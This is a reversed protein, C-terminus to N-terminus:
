RPRQRCHKGQSQAENEACAVVNACLIPCPRVRGHRPGPQVWLLPLLFFQLLVHTRGLLEWLSWAEMAPTPHVAGVISAAADRGHRCQQNIKRKNGHLKPKTPGDKAARQNQKITANLPDKQPVITPVKSLNTEPPANTFTAKALSFVFDWHDNGGM